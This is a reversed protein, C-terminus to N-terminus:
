VAGNIDYRIVWVTNRLKNVHDGSAYGNLITWFGGLISYRAVALHLNNGRILSLGQEAGTCLRNVAYGHTVLTMRM